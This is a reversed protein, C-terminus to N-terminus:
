KVFACNGKLYKWRLAHAFSYYLSWHLLHWSTGWKLYLFFVLSSIVFSLLFLFVLLLGQSFFSVFAYNKHMQDFDYNKGSCIWCMTNRSQKVFQFTTKRVKLHKQQTFTVSLIWFWLRGTWLKYINWETLCILSLQASHYM